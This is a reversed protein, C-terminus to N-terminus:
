ASINCATKREILSWIIPRGGLGGEVAFRFPIKRDRLYDNFHPAKPKGVTQPSCGTLEVLKASETPGNAAIHDFAAQIIERSRIQTKSKYQHKM